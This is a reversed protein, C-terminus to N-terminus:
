CQFYYPPILHLYVKIGEGRIDEHLSALALLNAAGQIILNDDGAPAEHM